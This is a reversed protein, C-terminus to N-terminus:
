QYPWSSQGTDPDLKGQYQKKEDYTLSCGIIHNQLPGVVESHDQHFFYWPRQMVSTTVWQM